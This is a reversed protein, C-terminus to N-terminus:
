QAGKLVQAVIQNALQESQASLGAKASAAENALTAKAEKIRVLAAERAAALKESQQDRWVKRQAEQEAMLETRAQSLAAEYEAVRQEARAIADQASKRAGDTAERRRALIGEIPKFLMSRLYFYLFIVLVFTPIARFAVQGVGELLEQM